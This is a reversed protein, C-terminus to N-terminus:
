FLSQPSDRLAPAAEVGSRLLRSMKKRLHDRNPQNIVRAYIRLTTTPDEHGVQAQVYPVDYGAALMFSIYSRRLTHPTVHALIQPEGRGSRLENAKRLAGQVVANVNQRDRRGGTRTPFLPGAPDHGSCAARYAALEARLRPPVDVIRVGAGTKSQRVHIRGRELDIHRQDLQCLEGVRFGALGLTAIIARRV